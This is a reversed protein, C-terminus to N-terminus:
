TSTSDADPGGFVDNNISSFSYLPGPGTLTLGLGLPEAKNALAKCLEILKSVQNTSVLIAFNSSEAATRVEVEQVERVVTSLTNPIGALYDKQRQLISRRVMVAERRAALFDRGSEAASSSVRPMHSAKVQLTYESHDALRCLEKSLRVSARVLAERIQPVGKFATGIRVPIVPAYQTYHSLLLHHELAANMLLDPTDNLKSPETESCSVLGIMGDVDVRHHHTSGEPIPTNAQTVGHLILANM